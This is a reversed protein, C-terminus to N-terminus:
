GPFSECRVAGLLPVCQLRRWDLNTRTNSSHRARHNRQWGLRPDPDCRTATPFSYVVATYARVLNAAKASEHVQVIVARSFCASGIFSFDTLVGDSRRWHTVPAPVGLFLDHGLGAPLLRCCAGSPGRHRSTGKEAPEDRVGVTSTPGVSLTLEENTPGARKRRHNRSSATM